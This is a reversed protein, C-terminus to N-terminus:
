WDFADTFSAESVNIVRLVTLRVLLVFTLLLIVEIFQAVYYCEFLVGIYIIVDVCAVFVM